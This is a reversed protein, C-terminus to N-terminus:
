QNDKDEAVAQDLPHFEKDDYCVFWQAKGDVQRLIYNYEEREGSMRYMEYNWYRRAGTDEEGRDRGYFLSWKGYKAEHEKYADSGFAHPNDFPHQEGIEERLISLDGLDILKQLKFPDSYHNLLIPGHHSIYGDWHCYVQDVTGDAYEIAITSRTAM